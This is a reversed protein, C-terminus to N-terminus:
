VAAVVAPFKCPRKPIVRGQNPVLGRDGGVNVCVFFSEMSVLRPMKALFTLSIAGWFSLEPTVGLLRLQSM